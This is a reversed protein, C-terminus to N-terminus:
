VTQCQDPMPVSVQSGNGARSERRLSRDRWPRRDLRLENIARGNHIHYWGSSDIFSDLNVVKGDAQWMVGYSGLYAGKRPDYHDNRGVVENRNNIGFAWTQGPKFLVLQQMAGGYPKRFALQPASDGCTAGQDNIAYGSSSPHDGSLVGLDVPGNVPTLTDPDIEWLAARHGSTSHSSGVVRVNGSTADTNSVDGAVSFGGGSLVGLDVPGALLNGAPGVKWAVARRNSDGTANFSVGVVVGDNNISMAWCDSRGPLPPLLVPASFAEQWYIAKDVGDVVANGVIEGLDNVGFAASEGFDGPARCSISRM